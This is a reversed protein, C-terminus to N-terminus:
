FFRRKRRTQKCGRRRRRSCKKYSRRRKKATKKFRRRRRTGGAAPKPPKKKVALQNIVIPAPAAGEPNQPQQEIAAAVAALPDGQYPVVIANRLRDAQDGSLFANQKQVYRGDQKAKIKEDITLEDYEEDTLMSKNSSISKSSSSSVSSLQNSSSSKNSQSTQLSKRGKDCEKKFTDCVIYCTKKQEECDCNTKQKPKQKQENQELKRIKKKFSNIIKEVEFGLERMKNIIKKKKEVWSNYQNKRINDDESEIEEMFDVDANTVDIDFGSKKAAALKNKLVKYDDFRGLKLDVGAAIADNITKKLKLYKEEDDEYYQIATVYKKLMETIKQRDNEGLKALQQDFTLFKDPLAVPIAKNANQKEFEKRAANEAIEHLEEIDVNYDDPLEEDTEENGYVVHLQGENDVNKNNKKLEEIRERELEEEEKQEVEKRKRENELLEIVHGITEEIDNLNEEDWDREDKLHLAVELKEEIKDRTEDSINEHLKDLLGAFFYFEELIADIDPINLQPITSSKFKKFKDKTYNIIEVVSNEEGVDFDLDLDFGEEVRDQGEEVHNQANANDEVPSQEPSEKKYMNKEARTMNKWRDKIIKNIEKATAQPNQSKVDNKIANKFNQFPDGTREKAVTAVRATSARATAPAATNETVKYAARQEKSMNKWRDNLIKDVERANAGPANQRVEARHQRSFVQFTTPKRKAKQIVAVALEEVGPSRALEENEESIADALIAAVPEVAREPGNDQVAEQIADVVRSSSLVRQVVAAAEAPGVTSKKPASTRKRTQKPANPDKPKRTRKPANPDKQKRTKSPEKARSCRSNPDNEDTRVCDKKCRNTQANRVEGPPCPPLANAQANNRVSPVFVISSDDSGISSSSSSDLLSIPNSRNFFNSM